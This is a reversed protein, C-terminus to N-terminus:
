EDDGYILYQGRAYEEGMPCAAGHIAKIEGQESEIRIRCNQSCRICPLEMSEGERGSDGAM